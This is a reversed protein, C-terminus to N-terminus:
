DAGALMLERAAAARGRAVVRNLATMWSDGYVADLEELGGQDLMTRVLEANGGEAAAHLMTRENCGKWGKGGDAGAKLLTLSLKKDGDALAHELPTRL